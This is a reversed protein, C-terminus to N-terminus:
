EVYPGQNRYRWTSKTYSVGGSTLHEKTKRSQISTKIGAGTIMYDTRYKSPLSANYKKIATMAKAKAKTDKDSYADKYRRMLVDKRRRLINKTAQNLGRRAYTMAETSTGFGVAQKMYLEGLGFEEPNVITNGYFDKLGEQRYKMGLGFDKMMKPSLYKLAGMWWDGGKEVYAVYKSVNKHNGFLPGIATDIMTNKITDFWNDGRSAMVVLNQMGLRQSADVGALRPAGWMAAEAAKPTWGLTNVLWNFIYMDPDHRLAEKDPDDDDMQDLLMSAIVEWAARVPEVLVGGAIGTFPVSMFMMAMLGKLGAIREGQTRLKLIMEAQMSLVMFSFQKFMGVSRMFANQNFWRSRGMNSYDAQTRRIVTSAWHQAEEISKGDERALRYAAIGSAARNFHELTFPLTKGLQMIANLPAEIPHKKFSPNRKGTAQEMAAMSASADMDKNRTVFDLMNILEDQDPANLRKLQDRLMGGLKDLNADGNEWIKIGFKGTALSSTIPRTIERMARETHKLARGAGHYATLYPVTLMPVQVMQMVSFSVTFLHQIFVLKGALEGAVRSFRHQAEGGQISRKKMEEVVRAMRAQEHTSHSLTDVSEHLGVMANSVEFGHKLEGIGYSLSQQYKALGKMLDVDAGKTRQRTLMRKAIRGEPMVSFMMQEITKQSDKLMRVNELAEALAQPDSTQGSVAEAKKRLKSIRSVMMSTYQQAMHPDGMTLDRKLGSSLYDAGDNKLMHQNKGGATLLELVEQRKKEAKAETDFLWFENTTHEFVYHTEGSATVYAKLAGITDGPHGEQRLKRAAKALKQDAFRLKEPLAVKAFYDGERYLPFYVGRRKTLNNINRVQRIFEKWEQESSVNEGAADQPLELEKLKKNDRIGQIKAIMSETLGYTRGYNNILERRYEALAEKYYAQLQVWAKRAAKDLQLFKTQLDKHKKKKADSWKPDAIAQPNMEHRTSEIALEEAQNWTKSKRVLDELPHNFRAQWDNIYAQATGSVKRMARTLDTLANTGNPRQFWQKTLQEFTELPFLAYGWRKGLNAAESDLVVNSDRAEGANMMATHVRARPPAYMADYMMQRPRGMMSLSRGTAREGARMFRRHMARRDRLVQNVAADEQSLTRMAEQGFVAEFGRMGETDLHHQVLQNQDDLSTFGSEVLRMTMDLLNMSNAQKGFLDSVYSVLAKWATSKRKGPIKVHLNQLLAQFAPKTMANTMFEYADNFGEFSAVDVGQKRAEEVAFNRLKIINARFKPDFEYAITTFAHVLEHLIVEAGQALEQEKGEFIDKSIWVTNEVKAVTNNKSFVPVAATAGRAAADGTIADLEEQSVFKIPLQGLESTKLLQAVQYHINSADELVNIFEDLIRTSSVAKGYKGASKFLMRLRRNLTRYQRKGAQVGTEPILRPDYRGIRYSGARDPDDSRAKHIRNDTRSFEGTNGVASKVQNPYFAAITEQPGGITEAIWIGDYGLSKLEDIVAKSEYVVWNGTKHAGQDVLEASVNKRLFAEMKKYDRQADFPNQIALYVPMLQSDAIEEFRYPSDFGYKDKLLGRLKATDKDYEARGAETNFDYADASQMVKSYHERKFQRMAEVEAQAEASPARFGGSGKIWTGAFEAQTTFFLLGDPYAPEFVDFDKKTGHFVVRPTGDSNVIKSEGFWRKFKTTETQPNTKRQFVTGTSGGHQPGAIAAKAMRGMLYAIDFDSIDALEAIGLRRIIERLTGVYEKLARQVKDPLTEFVREGMLHAFLEDTLFLAKQSDNLGEASKFYGEMSKELGHEKALARLGAEKGLQNFIRNYAAALKPGFLRRAGFHALGEHLIAQAIQLDSQMRDAVLYITGRHYVATIEGVAGEKEARDRIVKPLESESAVVQLGLTRHLKLKKFIKRAIVETLRPSLTAVKNGGERVKRAFSSEGEEEQKRTEKATPKKARAKKRAARNKKAAEQKAAEQKAEEALAAADEEHMPKRSVDKSVTAFRDIPNGEADVAVSKPQEKHGLADGPESKPKMDAMAELSKKLRDVYRVVAADTEASTIDTSVVGREDATYQSSRIYDAAKEGLLKEWENDAAWAKYLPGDRAERYALAEAARDAAVEESPAARTRGAKPKSKPAAKKVAKASAARKEEEAIEEKTKVVDSVWSTQHINEPTHRAVNLNDLAEQEAPILPKKARYKDRSQFALQIQAKSVGAAEAARAAETYERNERATDGKRKRGVEANEQAISQSTPLDKKDTAAVTQERLEEKREESLLPADDIERLRTARQQELQKVRNREITALAKDTKARAKAKRDQEEAKLKEAVTAVKEEEASIRDIEAQRDIGAQQEATPALAAEQAAKVQKVSALTVGKPLHERWPNDPHAAELEAAVEQARPTSFGAQKAQAAKGIPRPTPTPAPGTVPEPPAPEVSAVSEAKKQAEMFKRVDGVTINGNKGSGTVENLDVKNAKATEQAKPTAKWTPAEAAEAAKQATAAEEALALGEPTDREGSLQGEAPLNIGIDEYEVEQEPGNIADDLAADTNADGPEKRIEVKKGTDLAGQVGGAGGAMLTTAPIVMAAAEAYEGATPAGKETGIRTAGLEIDEQVMETPIEKKLAQAAGAGTRRLLKQGENTGGPKLIKGFTFKDIGTIMGAWPVVVAYDEPTAEERGDNKARERAMREAEAISVTVYSAPTLYAAWYALSKAAGTTAFNWTEDAAVTATDLSPADKFSKLAAKFGEANPELVDTFGKSELKDGLQDLLNEGSAEYETKDQTYRWGKDDHVFYGLSAFTDELYQGATETGRALNAGLETVSNWLLKGLNSVDSPDEETVATSAPTSVGGGYDDLLWYDNAADDVAPTDVDSEYEGETIPTGSLFPDDVQPEGAPLPAPPASTGLLWYDNASNDEM